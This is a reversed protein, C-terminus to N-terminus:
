KLECPGVKFTAKGLVVVNSNRRESSWALITTWPLVNM